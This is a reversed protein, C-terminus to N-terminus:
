KRIIVKSVKNGQRVIYIGNEPNAVRVGDITFYEAAVNETAIGEVGTARSFEIPYFQLKPAPDNKAQYYNLFGFVNYVDDDSPITISNSWKNYGEFTADKADTITFTKASSDYDSITVNEFEVYLNQMGSTAEELDVVTWNPASGATGKGFSSAVATFEITSYYDTWKGQIGSLLTGPEYTNGLNGYVLMGTFPAEVDQVYLNSGNQYVTKVQGTITWTNTTDGDAKELWEAITAVEYTVIEEGTIAFAIPYVQLTGNYSSVIGYVDYATTADDSPINVNFRNYLQIQDTGSNAYYNNGSSTILVNEVMVYDSLLDSTIDTIAVTAPTPATGPTGANFDSVEPVMQPAQGYLAYKGAINTLQTGVTYTPLNKANAYIQLSATEDTVYLYQNNYEYTVTVPGSIVVVNETDAKDLFAKINAVKAAPENYTASVVGSPNKGNEVAIAKVTTAKTILIESEYQDSSTTPTTGDITYYIIASADATISVLLGEEPIVTGSPPTIVPPASVNEGGESSISVATWRFQGAKNVDTEPGQDAKDSVTFTVEQASGTWTVTKGDLNYTVEGDTVALSGLQSWGSTLTFVMKTMTAGSSITMSNKAYLRADKNSNYYKPATTGNNKAFSFNYDGVIFTENVLDVDSTSYGVMELATIDGTPNTEGGGEGPNDGGGEGPNDGTGPDTNGGGEGYEVTITKVAKNGSATGVFTVSTQSGTWETINTTTGELAFTAGSVVTWSVKTINQGDATVTFSPSKKNYERLGDTWLRWADEGGLTITVDNSTVTTGESIYGGNPDMDGNWRELGYDNTTFDFTVSVASAGFTAAALACLSLLFKKM